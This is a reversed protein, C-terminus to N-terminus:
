HQFMLGLFCKVNQSQVMVLEKLSKSLRNRLASIVRDQTLDEMHGVIIRFGDKHQLFLVRLNQVKCANQRAKYPEVTLPPPTVPNGPQVTNSQQGVAAFATSPFKARVTAPLNDIGVGNFVYVSEVSKITLYKPMATPFPIILVLQLVLPSVEVVQICASLILSSFNDAGEFVPLVQRKELTRLSKRAVFYEYQGGSDISQM